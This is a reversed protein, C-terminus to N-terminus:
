APQVLSERRSDFSDAATQHAAVGEVPLAHAWIEAVMQAFHGRPRAHVQWHQESGDVDHRLLGRVPEQPSIAPDAVCCHPAVVVEVDPKPLLCTTWSGLVPVQPLQGSQAPIGLVGKFAYSEPLQRLQGRCPNGCTCADTQSFRFTTTQTEGYGFCWQVSGEPM